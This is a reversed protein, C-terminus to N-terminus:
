SIKIALQQPLNLIIIVQRLQLILNTIKLLYKTFKWKM